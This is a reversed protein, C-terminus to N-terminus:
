AVITVAPASADQPPKVAKARKIGPLDVYEGNGSDACELRPVQDVAQIAKFKVVNGCWGIL